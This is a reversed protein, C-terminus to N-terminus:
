LQDELIMQAAKEGIMIAPANTNGSVIQPMISCDAIRLGEVRGGPIRVKLRECVVARADQGMRCTGTPHYITVANGRIWALIDADSKVTAGPLFEEVIMPRLPAHGAITRAIKVGSVLTEQDTATDLYRPEIVPPALPDKSSLRVFGRSEPRLQCVSATFGSFRHPGDGPADASWPQIHFQIDPGALGERTRLFAVGLSAAMTMTGRRLLAFELAMLGKRWLSHAQDNITPVTCKYVPRAQLHDQLGAGVDPSDIQPPIGMAQLHEAPGIGSRMLLMPSAIAGACLIVEGRCRASQEQGRHRYRVATARHNEINIATAHAGTLVKLNPRQRIPKLFATASSCRLGNHTTTHFYGVGEQEEGNYDPNYAYGAACAAKVWADVIPQRINEQSVVLRGDEPTQPHCSKHFLPQVDEWGWGVNGLQRWHDYDQPQGRVYLLGNLASSGGLVKGRPWAMVRDNLSPCPQTKLCWDYRPNHMTKFYGLPIHIWPSRDPGGAELLLVRLKPNASLRNALVCGASGAGVIIMDFTMTHSPYAFGGAPALHWM